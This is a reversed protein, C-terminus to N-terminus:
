PIVGDEGKDLEANQPGHVISGKMYWTNIIHANHLKKVGCLRCFPM